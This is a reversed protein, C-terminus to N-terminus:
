KGTSGFGGEGRDTGGLQNVEEWDARVHHAIVLQAIREGDEIVYTESSLNVLIVGIEGRYDADITGPANLVTIGHKLALGSRPRVQAECELPLELFLGTKILARELPKLSVSKELNARLDMGASAETEYHPLPHKSQNVVKITLDDFIDWLDTEDDFFDEEDNGFFGNDFAEDEWVDDEEEMNQSVFGLDYNIQELNFYTPDYVEGLWEIMEHREPSKKDALVELLHYYGPIGGCDEPPCNLEGDLCVPYEMDNELPAIKEILIEHEWGDGFDYEYSFKKIESSLAEELTIKKADIVKSGDGFDEELEGIRYNNVRFEYLHYNKWEMALQITHHLEFFSISNKVLIRRWILPKTHKLVIKLQVAKKLEILKSGKSM